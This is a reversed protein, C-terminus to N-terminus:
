RSRLTNEAHHITPAGGGRPHCVAYKGLRPAQARRPMPELRRGWGAACGALLWLAGVGGGPHDERGSLQDLLEEHRAVVETRLSLELQQIGESLAHTSTAASSNALVSSTFAGTDLDDLFVSLLADSKIAALAAEPGGTGPGM